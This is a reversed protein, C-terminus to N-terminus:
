VESTSMNSEECFSSEAHKLPPRKDKNNMVKNDCAGIEISECESEYKGRRRSHSTHNNSVSGRRFKCFMKELEIRFRPHTVAYLYPDICAATKAMIGPIMSTLPSISDKYGFIGILSVLCYPTWAFM